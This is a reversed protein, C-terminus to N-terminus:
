GREWMEVELGDLWTPTRSVMQSEVLLPLSKKLAKVVKVLREVVKISM